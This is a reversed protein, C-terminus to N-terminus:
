SRRAPERLSGILSEVATRAADRRDEPFGIALFDSTSFVLGMLGFAVARRKAPKARPFAAALEVDLTRELELYADRLVLAVNRDRGAVSFLEGVVQYLEVPLDEDILPDILADLRGAAPLSDVRERLWEIYRDRVRMALALNVEDRNGLYHRVLGRTVGAEAAVRDLSTGDAGYRILCAGYADLIQPIRVDSLSQRGV